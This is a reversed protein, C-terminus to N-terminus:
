DRPHAMWHTVCNISASLGEVDPFLCRRHVGIARLQEQLKRKKDASVLMVFAKGDPKGLGGKASFPKAVISLNADPHITFMGDQAIIRRTIPRPQYIRVVRCGEIDDEDRAENTKKAPRRYVYVGGLHESEHNETAFFLAVAANLTWDLLRTALGHHQAFALQELPKDPLNNSFAVAQHCWKDFRALDAERGRIRKSSFYQPRGAQPLLQATFEGQGRFIWENNPFHGLVIEVFNTLNDIRECGEFGKPVAPKTKSKTEM